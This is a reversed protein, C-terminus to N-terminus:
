KVDGIPEIIVTAKSNPPLTFSVIQPPKPPQPEPEPEPDPDPTPVSELVSVVIAATPESEIGGIDVTTMIVSYIAPTKYVFINQVTSSNTRYETWNNLDVDQFYVKHSAIEDVPLPDQNERNTPRIFQALVNPSEGNPGLFVLCDPIVDGNPLACDDNEQSVDMGAVAYLSFFLLTYM